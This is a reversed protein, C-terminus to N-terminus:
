AKGRDILKQRVEAMNAQQLLRGIEVYCLRLTDAHLLDPRHHAIGKLTDISTIIQSEASYLYHLANYDHLDHIQAM